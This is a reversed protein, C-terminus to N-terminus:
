DKVVLVHIAKVIVDRNDILILDVQDGPSGLCDECRAAFAARADEENWEVEYSPQDYGGTCAILWHPPQDGRDAVVDPCPDNSCDDEDRGCGACLYHYLDSDSTM